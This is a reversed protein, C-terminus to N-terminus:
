SGSRMTRGTRVELPFMKGPAPAPTARVSLGPPSSIDIKLAGGIQPAAPPKGQMRRIFDNDSPLRSAPSGPAPGPSSPVLSGRLSKIGEFIRREGSFFGGEPLLGKLWIIADAVTMVAEAIDKLDQVVADWDTNEVFSKGLQWAKELRNSIEEAWRKLEGSKALENVRSLLGELDKKVVDFIGAEAVLLLFSTWMDKLNSIMGFLTTAQRAMGGGFRESMIGVLVKEIAEGTMDADRRIDKGNKRFTFSVRNGEKSARIGFEKLREFEGTTADALAEVAQMLPKSMGSSADGLATLSGNMPDVGYAKLAIFAEMVQDIEYPTKATFEQVWAMAKRAGAASGELGELMVQYQEFQGATRFLDFLAFSGAGVAAAGGALLGNKLFGLGAGGLKRLGAGAARGAREVLRLRAILSGLNRTLGRVSSGIAQFIRGLAVQRLRRARRAFHELSREGSRVDSVARRIRQGMQRINDGLGRAGARARRAPGSLRDVMELIMSFRM